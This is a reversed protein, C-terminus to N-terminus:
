VRESYLGRLLATRPNEEGPAGEGALGKIFFGQKGSRMLAM